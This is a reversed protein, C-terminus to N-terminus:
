KTFAEGGLPQVWRVVRFGRGDYAVEAQGYNWQDDFVALLLEGGPGQEAGAVFRFPVAFDAPLPAIRLYDPNSPEATLGMNEWVMTFGAGNWRYLDYEAPSVDSQPHMLLMEAWGDHDMDMVVDPEYVGYDCECFILRSEGWRPGQYLLPGNSAYVDLFLSPCYLGAQCTLALTEPRGDGDLDANITRGPNYCSGLTEARDAPGGPALYSRTDMIYQASMFGHVGYETVVEAWRGQIAILRVEDGTNLEGIIPASAYNDGGWQRLNNGDDIVTYSEGPPFMPAECLSQALASGPLACMVLLLPILLRMHM